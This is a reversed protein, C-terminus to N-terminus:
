ESLFYKNYVRLTYPVPIQESMSEVALIITIFHVYIVLLYVSLNIEQNLLPLSEKLTSCFLLSWPPSFMQGLSQDSSFSNFLWFHSHPSSGWLPPLGMGLSPLMYTFLFMDPFHLTMQDSHVVHLEKGMTSIEWPFELHKRPLKRLCSLFLFLFTIEQHIRLCEFRGRCLYCERRVYWEIKPLSLNLM